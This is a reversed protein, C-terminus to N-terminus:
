RGRPASVTSIAPWTTHEHQPIARGHRGAGAVISSVTSGPITGWGDYEHILRAYGCAPPSMQHGVLLDELYETELPVPRGHRALHRHM